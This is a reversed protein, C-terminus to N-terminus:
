YLNSVDNDNVQIDDKRDFFNDWSIPTYDRKRRGGGGGSYFGVFFLDTM